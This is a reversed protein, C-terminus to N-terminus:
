SKPTNSQSPASPCTIKFGWFLILVGLFFPILLLSISISAQTILCFIVTFLIPLWALIGFLIGHFFATLSFAERYRRVKGDQLTGSVDISLRSDHVINVEFFEKKPLYDFKVLVSGDDGKRLHPNFISHDPSTSHTFPLDPNEGTIVIRLQDLPAFNTLRITQNGVNSFSINTLIPNKISSGDITLQLHPINAAEKSILQTSHIDYELIMRKKGILFLLTSFIAGGIIGIVTKLDLLSNLFDM